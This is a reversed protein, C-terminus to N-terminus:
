RYHFSSSPSNVAPRFRGSEDRPMETARWDNDNGTESQFLQAVVPAANGVLRAAVTFNSGAQVRADGPTVELVLHAPFLAFAIADFSQRMRDRVFFGTAALLLLAAVAQIGARRLVESAVIEASDVVSVSRAAVGGM